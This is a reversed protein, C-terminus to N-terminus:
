MDQLIDLVLSIGQKSCRKYRAGKFLPCMRWVFMSSIGSFQGLCVELYFLPVGALLMFFWFPILFAGIPHFAVITVTCHKQKTKTTKNANFSKQTTCIKCFQIFCFAFNLKPSHLACPHINKGFRSLMGWRGNKCSSLRGLIRTLFHMFDSM